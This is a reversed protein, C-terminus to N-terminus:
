LCCFNIAQAAVIKCCNANIFMLSHNTRFFAFLKRNFVKYLKQYYNVELLKRFVPYNM